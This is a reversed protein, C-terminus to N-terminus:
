RANADTFGHKGLVQLIHFAGQTVDFCQVRLGELSLTAQIGRGKIVLTFAQQSPEVDLESCQCSFSSAKGIIGVQLSNKPNGGWVKYMM